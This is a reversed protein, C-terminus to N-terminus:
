ERHPVVGLPDAAERTGPIAPTPLPIAPVMAATAGILSPTTPQVPTPTTKGPEGTLLPKTRRSRIILLTTAGLAVPTKASRAPPIATPIGLTATWKRDAGIETNTATPNLHIIETITAAAAEDAEQIAAPNLIEQSIITLPVRLSTPNEMDTGIRNIAGTLSRTLRHPRTIVANSAKANVM